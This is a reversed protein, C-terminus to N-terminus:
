LIKKDILIKFLYFALYKNTKSPFWLKLYILTSDNQQYIFFHSNVHLIKTPRFSQISDLQNTYTCTRNKRPFLCISMHDRTNKQQIFLNIFM